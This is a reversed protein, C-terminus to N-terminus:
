KKIPLWDLVYQICKDWFAWEHGGPEEHYCYRVGAEDLKKRFTINSPYLFDETGIAIYMEPLSVGKKIQRDLVAILDNDSGVFDDPSGFNITFDKFINIVLPEEKEFKEMYERNKLNKFEKPDLLATHDLAGSLSAVAGFKDTCNLAVKMAGYGGMSLGAIFNEDRRDSIKFFKRAIKPVEESIFTFYKYGISQDTYWSRHVAPMVIALRRGAAYREISTRRMWITHDDSLGHLLYLVPLKSEGDWVSGDVGLGADDEPLIVDMSCNLGLVTSYFHTNIWAM